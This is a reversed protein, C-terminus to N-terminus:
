KKPDSLVGNEVKSWAMFEPSKAFGVYADLTLIPKLVVGHESELRELFRCTAAFDKEALSVHVLLWLAGILSPDKALAKEATTKAVDLKGEQRYYDAHLVSLFPDPGVSKDIRDLCAHAGAFDENMVYGDLCMIDDAPDGPERKRVDAVVQLYIENSIRKACDLRLALLTRDSKYEEPLSDYKDLYAQYRGTAMDAPMLKFQELAQLLPCNEPALKQEIRQNDAAMGKQFTHRINASIPEGQRMIFLDVIRVGSPRRALFLKHYDFGGPEILVRLVIAVDSEDRQVSLFKVSAGTQILKCLTEFGNTEKIGNLYADRFVQLLTRDRETQDLGAFAVDLIANSDVLEQAQRSKGAHVLGLLVQAFEQCEKDTLPQGTHLEARVAHASTPKPSSQVEATHQLPEVAVSPTATAGSTSKGNCGLLVLAAFFSAVALCFSPSLRSEIVEESSKILNM